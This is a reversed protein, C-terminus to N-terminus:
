GLAAMISQRLRWSERATRYLQCYLPYLADYVRTLHPRPVFTHGEHVARQVAAALSPYVGAGVGALLAAGRAGFESGAPIVIRRGTVDAFLQAWFASRAGGGVLLIEELPQGSVEYCDRMALAVGEYVARLLDARTHEVSLGFFQGRASADAFPSVIGGNNLYPLFILGRAGPPASQVTDEVLDYVSRGQEAAQRTEEGALTKLLWDICMTGSTNVLSRAFLGGPLAAQVGTERPALSPAASIFTNLMSTGLITCAQGVRYAGGGILSAVVDVAGAVVPTGPPLLTQATGV